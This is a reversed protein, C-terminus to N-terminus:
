AHLLTNTLKGMTALIRYSSLLRDYTANTLANRSEFLDNEADLVNFLGRQGLEFEKKYDTVVTVNRKVAINLQPIQRQTTKLAVWSNRLNEIINRHTESAEATAQNNTQEAAGLAASDSGGNFLNYRAEVMALFEENRGEFGDLDNDYNYSVDLDINPFFAARAVGINAKTANINDLAAQLEPNNNISTSLARQYNQPLRSATLRPMTLSKAPMDGTSSLYDAVAQKVNGIAGSLRARAQALRSEALAVQVRRGAGGKFRLEVNQLTRRHTNVNNRALRELKRTRMVNLYATAIELTVNESTQLYESQSVHLNAHQQKILSSTRWGNFLLQNVSAGAERRFLRQTAINLARLTPSDTHERGGALNLDLKPFLGGRAQNVDHQRALMNANAAVLQPNSHLTQNVVQQLTTAQATNATCLIIICLTSFVRFKFM